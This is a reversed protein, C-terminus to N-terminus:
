PAEYRSVLDHRLVKAELITKEDNTGEIAVDVKAILSILDERDWVGTDLEEYVEALLREAHEHPTEEKDIRAEYQMNNIFSEFGDGSKEGMSSCSLMRM